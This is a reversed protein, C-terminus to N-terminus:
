HIRLGWESFTLEPRVMRLGPLHRFWTLQRKSYQRSKQQILAVADPLTMKEDIVAAMEAYGLAKGAERSMPKELQRLQRVEDLWGDAVMAEVRTNIRSYLEDRSIDLCYAKPRADDATDDNWQTQWASLPQGTLEFVELARVVRRVDNVHLKTAIVPDVETLRAHLTEAPQAELRERLAHDAPPSEFIGFLMAKLYFPTGGVILPVKNDTRIDRVAAAALDLWWAVSTSEWPDLVDILHHPVRARDAVSPKATGIDMRRYLSMSDCAIIEANLHEALSLALSSKGSGTPGTLIVADRFDAPQAPM